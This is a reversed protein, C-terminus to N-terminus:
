ETSQLLRWTRWTKRTKLDNKNEMNEIDKTNETYRSRSWWMKMKKMENADEEDKM